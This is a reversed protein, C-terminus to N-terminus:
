TVQILTISTVRNIDIQYLPDNHYITTISLQSLPSSSLFLPFLISSFSSHIPSYLLFSLLLLGAYAKLQDLRLSSYRKNQM